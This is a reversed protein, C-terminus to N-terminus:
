LLSCLVKDLRTWHSKISSIPHFGLPNRRRQGMIAGAKSVLMGCGPRRRKRWM